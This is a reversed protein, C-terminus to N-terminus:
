PKRECNVSVANLAWSAGSKGITREIRGLNLIDTLRKLISGVLVKRVSHDHCHLPPRQETLGEQPPPPRRDEANRGAAVAVTGHAPNRPHFLLCNRYLPSLLNQIIAAPVADEDNGKSTTLRQHM